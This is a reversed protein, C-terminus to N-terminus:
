LTQVTYFRPSTTTSGQAEAVKNEWYRLNREVEDANARTLKRTSGAGNSIEYSKGMALSQNAEYWLKYNDLALDLDSKTPSEREGLLELASKIKANTGSM